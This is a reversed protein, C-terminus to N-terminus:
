QHGYYSNLEEQLEEATFINKLFKKLIKQLRHDACIDCVFDNVSSYLEQLQEVQGAIEKYAWEYQDEWSKGRLAAKTIDKLNLESYLKVALVHNIPAFGRHRDIAVRVDDVTTEWTM